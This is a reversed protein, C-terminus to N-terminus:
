LADSDCKIEIPSLILDAHVKEGDGLKYARDCVSNHYWACWRYKSLIGLNAAYKKLMEELCNACHRMYLKDTMALYRMDLYGVFYKGDHNDPFINLQELTEMSYNELISEDVIVRPFKSSDNEHKSADILGKGWVILDDIYYKGYAIGIFYIGINVAFM